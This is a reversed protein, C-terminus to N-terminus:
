SIRVASLRGFAKWSGTVWTINTVYYYTTNTSIAVRFAPVIQNFLVISVGPGQDVESDGDIAGSLNNTVTSIASIAQSVSAVTTGAYQALLSIDWVGPTLTISTITQSTASSTVTVAGAASIVSSIQEGVFGVGLATSTRAGIYQGGTQTTANVTTVGGFNGGFRQITGAGTIVNTNSSSFFDNVSVFTGSSVVISSATGTLYANYLGQCTGSSNITIATSNTVSTDFICHDLQLSGTSSTSIPSNMRCHRMVVTGASVTSATSSQSNTVVDFYCNGFYLGTGSMAWMAFTSSALGNCDYLEIGTAAITNSNQIATNDNANIYCEKCILGSANTGTLSLCFDGNTRLNLNNLYANGTATMSCKGTITVAGYDLGTLTVGSKLTLNETYTGGRIGIVDGSSASTLAAAITTHTGQTADSSVLWKTSCFTNTSIAQAM